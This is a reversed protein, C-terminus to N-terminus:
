VIINVAAQTADAVAQEPVKVKGKTGLYIIVGGITLVTFVVGGIIIKKKQVKTLHKREKKPAETAEAKVETANGTNVMKETDAM